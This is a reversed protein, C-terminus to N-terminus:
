HAIQANFYIQKKTQNLDNKAKSSDNRVSLTHASECVFLWHQELSEKLLFLENLVMSLVGRQQHLLHVSQVGGGRKKDM